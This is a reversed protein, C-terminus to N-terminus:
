RCFYDAVIQNQSGGWSVVTFADICNSAADRVGYIVIRGRYAPHMWEVLPSGFNEVLSDYSRGRWEAQMLDERQHRLDDRGVQVLERAFLSTACGLLILTLVTASMAHQPSRQMAKKKKKKKKKWRHLVSFLIL